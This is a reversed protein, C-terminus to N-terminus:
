LISEYLDFDEKFNTEIIRKSSENLISNYDDSIGKKIEFNKINKLGNYQLKKLSEELNEYKFVDQVIINNSENKIFYSQTFFHELFRINYECQWELRYKGFLNCFNNIESESIKSFFCASIFRSYPNRIYCFSYNDEYKKPFNSQIKKAPAHVYYNVTNKLVRKM